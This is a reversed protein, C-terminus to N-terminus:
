PALRVDVDSERTSVVLMKSAEAFTEFHQQPGTLKQSRGPATRAFHAQRVLTDTGVAITRGLEYPPGPGSM